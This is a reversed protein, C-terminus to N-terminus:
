MKITLSHRSCDAICPVNHLLQVRAQATKFSFIEAADVLVETSVAVAEGIEGGGVAESAASGAAEGAALAEGQVHM